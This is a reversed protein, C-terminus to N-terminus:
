KEFLRRFKSIFISDSTIQYKFNKKKRKEEKMMNVSESFETDGTIINLTGDKKIIQYDFYYDRGAPIDILFMFKDNRAMSYTQQFFAKFPVYKMVPKGYCNVLVASEVNTILGQSQLRGSEYSILRLGAITISKELSSPLKAKGDQVYKEKFEDAVDIGEWELVAQELTTSNFDMDQLGEVENLKTAMAQMVGKDIAMDFRATLNMTTKGTSQNYNVVGVADVDVDGYNMGLEVVGDGNMSCSETHLAIYNGKENRNLLKDQSSIQFEKTQQDYQLLGNATIVIPDKPDVLASLFTPYLTLSDTNPSDRWVIGASITKGELDKMKDSVPIQIKKPNIESSFAMWNKDFKDCKHNIRTAGSFSILPNSAKIAVDGYYDFEESLKFNQEKLVKGSAKTQYATDLSINNMAIYTVNSDVDYYPYKGKASYDRRARIEVHADEFSHYKTVYNAIIKAGELPDMKAKKRINVIMSDPYIRADAIDIYEVSECHIVKSKVDFKARPARFNLSDQKPNTSFFNSGVLDVGAEINVDAEKKARMEIALDDMFWKFFDMKAMYQNVPFKVTSQGENSHFEGIRDTFSVHSKVNDTAFALADESVDDSRNQLRFSSTDAFVENRKYEFDDSILNANIFSMLGIGRMGEPRIIATGRLRAEKDFFILDNQPTSAAKLVKERPIYTILARETSVDPFEVGSKAPLNVFKAMGVTSDPLFSFLGISESTSKVFNITGKGQLGNNSLVIKNNYKAETGYFVYGEAPSERSFGFSYDPMIKIEEKIKPFIGASVLEGKLRLKREKFSNLSDMLFPEITYYFRTSDYAGRYLDQSNYYVKSKNVSNLKPYTMSLDDGQSGSRNNPDDILIEGSIGYISSRMTIGKKGHTKDLPRVRFVSENTKQLKIKYGDYDFSALEAESEFKGAKTWGSYVFDRNQKVKLNGNRPFVATNRNQSIVVRDVQVLDLELTSLSIKGFAELLGRQINELRNDKEIKRLISDSMIEQRTYGDLGFAKRPRFDSVFVLNDYDIKGAKAKVFNELKQNVVVKKTESDYSIFGLSSLSLLTQKAQEVTKGLATAAKGETLVYEDYKYCYQSIAVLPHRSEMAQLRDYVRENFYSQSEFSAIRQEQSSGFEYTFLLNDDDIKWIIKPVYIDLKHYSDQFPAEGIGSQGRVLQIDNKSLDYTFSVGPHSISDGSNLLLSLEARDSFVKDPSILIQEARASIFTKGDKLYTIKAKNKATGAGLFSEGQYAFGGQYDLNPIIDKIILNREFSLFQPYVKDEERNIKFARDTLIGQISSEFYPTTLDVTDVRLTSSKLSLDYGRLNAYTTNPDLGVKEWTIKGGKGVWKKLVPDYKGETDIVQLSDLAEGKNRGSTSLARCVLNGNSLNVQVNKGYSFDYDGHLYYWAFTSSQAIRRESFFGASFGVFAKIKKVSRSSLMKDVTSHWATYSEKSQKSKVFASVSFVYNYIEPYVKIKKSEILNCTEVMKSFYDDPFENTELLLLPLEKKAFQQFEGRGYESLNKQFEKVFKERSNSYSQASLQSAILGMLFLLGHKIKM